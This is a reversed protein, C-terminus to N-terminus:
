GRVKEVDAEPIELVIGTMEFISEVMNIRHMEVGDPAAYRFLAGIYQGEATVQSRLKIERYTRREWEEYERGISVTTESEIQHWGTMGHQFGELKRCREEELILRMGELNIDSVRLGPQVIVSNESGPGRLAAPIDCRIPLKDRRQLDEVFEGFAQNPREYVIWVDTPFAMGAYDRWFKPSQVRWFKTLKPEAVFNSDGMLLYDALVPSIIKLSLNRERNLEELKRLGDLLPMALPRGEAGLMGVHVDKGHFDFKGIRVVEIGGM